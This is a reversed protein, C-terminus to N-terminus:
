LNSFIEDLKKLQIRHSFVRECTLRGEAGINDYKARFAFRDLIASALAEDNEPPIITVDKGNTVYHTVDGVNTFISPVASALYEALKTPSGYHAYKTNVRNMILLECEELLTPVHNYLVLGTLEVVDTLNRHKIWSEVVNIDLCHGMLRLRLEPRVNQAMAFANLIGEVGDKAGFSGLYGILNEKKISDNKFRKLDVVIPILTIRNEKFHSKYNNYLNHSIVVQHDCLVHAIHEDLIDFFLLLKQANTRKDTNSSKLETQEFVTKKNYIKSLLILHWSTVLDPSYFYCCDFEKNKSAFYQIGRFTSIVSQRMKGTLNSPRKNNNTIYRFPIGQWIGNTESNVGENNFSSAWKYVLSVSHGAEMLALAHAKIRSNSANGEPFSGSLFFVIRKLGM